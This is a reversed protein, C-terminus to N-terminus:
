LLLFLLLLGDNRRFLRLFVKIRALYLLVVGFNNGALDIISFAFDMFFFRDHIVTKVTFNMAETSFANKNSLVVFM